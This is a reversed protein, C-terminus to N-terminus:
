AGPLAAGGSLAAREGEEGALCIAANSFFWLIRSNLICGKDAERDVTLGSDMWGYFGGNERDRLGEWFTVLRGWPHGRVENSLM